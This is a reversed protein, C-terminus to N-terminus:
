MFLVTLSRAGQAGHVMYAGIDATASPGLMFCGYNHTDLHVQLYAEYMDRVLQDPKLLIVLHQSLFGLANVGLEEETLWVMGTESVGFQARIVGVDVDNLDHPNRIDKLEKNGKIEPVASCIVKADPHLKQILALAEDCNKVEHWSGAGIVLNDKFEDLIPKRSKAFTPIAPYPFDGNPKNSRVADLIYERTTSM